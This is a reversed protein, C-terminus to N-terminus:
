PGTNASVQRKLGPEEAIWVASRKCNPYYATKDRAMFHTCSIATIDKILMQKRISKINKVDLNYMYRIVNYISTNSNYIYTYIYM